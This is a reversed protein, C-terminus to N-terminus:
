KLVAARTKPQRQILADTYSDFKFDISGRFNVHEFRGPSIHRIWNDDIPFKLAKWRDVVEQMKMTNWSIVVNTLLTHATSIARLEDLRRGRSVGVRGHYVARQLLHVSEGRNLLAHMERRFQPNTFYDCLFITRLLKGLEDAAAHVPDGKAASGLRAIAEAATLRGQRISAILRLLDMWGARIKRLSVKGIALRELTEPPNTGRALFMKRESLKRLRVCLDFGLLKAIAMGANTYGHTDVALLSLRIQDERRTCNHAEVGHVAPAAQRDNIVIPQDHFLAWTDLMHVYIGVGPQKRRHEMRAAHLHRSTDLTMSDSSAKDGHGWLKAIPMSQQFDVIRTNAERLRGNAEIARLAVTIQSVQMGPVMACVGKANNETGHVYLACYVAKLESVDKAARGLLAQSFRTKADIEVLMNGFQANGIKAFMMESTKSVQPAVELAHIPAIHIHGQADITLVGEEVAEALQAMGADVSALLRQLFKEPDDTLSLARILSKSKEAWENKPILQDARSRHRSSHELWLRGGKIAKRLSSAASAKLAAFALKRDKCQLLSHWGPDAMSVDFGEPLMNAGQKILDRLTELQKLAKDSEEGKIELVGLSNLLATVRPAQDKAMAERVLQARTGGFDTEDRPMLERMAAVIERDTMSGDYLVERLKSREARLDVSSDAQKKLVKGSAKQYLDTLRRAGIEAALDTQELLTVHLFSVVQLERQEDALIRTASPPRHVVEQSYAKLRNLAIASLNWKHVHLAKLCEVKKCVESLTFQGHKGPPTRLWELVTHGGPGSRKSFAHTVAAHIQRRPVSTRITEIAAREQEAFAGRAMDRLLRDGPLVLRRDFCWQESQQVLDDVSIASRSLEGLADALLAKAEEDVPEFGAQQRAWLQHEYKTKRDKYLSEISAIDTPNMGLTSTLHRLLVSPLGTFADPHRGTARLMVLQVAAGLRASGRFRPPRLEQIDEASLGFCEEAERTSLSKPLTNSGVFRLYFSPM